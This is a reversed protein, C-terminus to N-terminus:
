SEMEVAVRLLSSRFVNLMHLLAWCMVLDYLKKAEEIRVLGHQICHVVYFMLHTGDCPWIGM